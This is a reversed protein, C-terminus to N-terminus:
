PSPSKILGTMKERQFRSNQSTGEKVIHRLAWSLFRQKRPNTQKNLKGPVSFAGLLTQQTLSVLRISRGRGIEVQEGEKVRRGPPEGM